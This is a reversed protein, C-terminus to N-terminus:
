VYKQKIVLGTIVACILVLLSAWWLWWLPIIAPCQPAAAVSQTPSERQSSDIAGECMTSDVYLTSFGQGLRGYESIVKGTKANVTRLIADSPLYIAGGSLETKDGPGYLGLSHWLTGTELRYELSVHCNSLNGFWQISGCHDLCAPNSCEVLPCANHTQMQASNIESTDKEELSSPSHCHSNHM